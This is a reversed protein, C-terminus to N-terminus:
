PHSRQNEKALQLLADFEAQLDDAITDGGPVRRPDSTVMFTLSGNYTLVAVTLGHQRTLPTSGVILDLQRGMFHLPVPSGPVNTVTVNFMGTRFQMARNLTAALPAPALGLLGMLTGTTAAQRSQAARRVSEIVKRVRAAPDPEGVPLEPYTMAIQNGMAGRSGNPRANVPVFAHLKDVLADNRELYRRLGGSVTALVINNVTTDHARRIEHVDALPVSVYSIRRTPGPRGGNFTSAPAQGLTRALGVVGVAASVPAPALRRLLTPEASPKRAQTPAAAPLRSDPALLATFVDIISLGDVMCHHIKLSIGFGHSLGEVLGIEWLPRSLDLPSATLNEIHAAVEDHGGPAPLATRTVHYDLAFSRDEVWRPRALGLLSGSLRQTFHPLGLLREGVVQRFEAFDPAEGAFLLMGALQMRNEADEVQLFANDLSSLRQGM